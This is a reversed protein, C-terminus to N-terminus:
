ILMLFCFKKEIVFYYLEDNEIKLKTYKETICKEQKIALYFIMQKKVKYISCTTKMEIFNEIYIKKINSEKTLKHM